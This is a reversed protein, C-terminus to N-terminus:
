IRGRLVSYAEINSVHALSVAWPMLSRGGAARQSENKSRIGKWFGAEIFRATNPWLNRSPFTFFEQVSIFCGGFGRIQLCGLHLRERALCRSMM